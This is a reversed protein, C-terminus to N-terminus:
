ASRHAGPGDLDQQIADVVGLLGLRAVVPPRLDAHFDARVRASKAAIGDEAILLVGTNPKYVDLLYKNCKLNWEKM